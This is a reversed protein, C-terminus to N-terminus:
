CHDALRGKKNKTSMERLAVKRGGKSSAAAVRRPGLSSSEEPEGNEALWAASRGYRELAEDSMQAIRERIAELDINERTFGYMLGEGRARRRDFFDHRGVAQSYHKNKIRVWSADPNM